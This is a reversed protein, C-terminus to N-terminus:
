ITMLLKRLQDMNDVIHTPCAQELETRSRFGWSVGISRIHANHATQIDVSSDGIMTVETHAVGAKRIIKEILKPDPKLPMGEMNGYVDTFHIHPFFKSILKVTGEHFKNSAVAIKAKSLQLEELLEVIGAYPHTKHDIHTSYYTVFEQKCQELYETQRCDIPLAQEVLRRIGNGVFSCYEEYTHTPHCHNRMVHDCAEALDGITNLLTGDLDFIYLKNSLM